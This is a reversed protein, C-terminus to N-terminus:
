RSPMAAIFRQAITVLEEGSRGGLLGSMLEVDKALPRGAPTDAIAALSGARLRVGSAVCSSSGTRLVEALAVPDLGLGEGARMADDALVIQASLLTNNILKAVSGAGIDGLHVVHSSLTATLEAVDRLTAADGGIMMTLEGTMAKPQGGSVPADLVRLGAAVAREAIQRIQAPAVTSHVLVVTGPQLAEAAGDAGFLVEEVGAADFVCICLADIAGLDAPTEAVAVPSGAFPELTAPRRAYVTLEHGAAVIRRAMPLGM